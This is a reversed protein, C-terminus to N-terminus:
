FPEPISEYIPPLNDSHVPAPHESVGAHNGKSKGKEPKRTDVLVVGENKVKKKQKTLAAQAIVRPTFIVMAATVLAVADTHEGMKQMVESKEIMNAIPQALQMAEEQQLQWIAMDPRAAVIGSATLILTSIQEANFTQPEEKKKKPTRKKKKQPEAPVPAAEKLVPVQASKEEKRTQTGTRPGADTRAPAPTGTGPAPAPPNRHTREPGAPTGPGPQPGAPTRTDTGRSDTAPAPVPKGTIREGM